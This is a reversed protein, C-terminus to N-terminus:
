TFEQNKIFHRTEARLCWSSTTELINKMILSAKLSFPPRNILHRCQNPQNKGQVQIIHTMHSHKLRTMHPCNPRPILRFNSINRHQISVNKIRQTNWQLNQRIGRGRRGLTVRRFYRRIFWRIWNCTLVWGFWHRWIIFWGFKRSFVLIIVFFCEQFLRM